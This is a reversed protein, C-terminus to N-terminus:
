ESASAPACPQSPTATSSSNVTISAIMNNFPAKNFIGHNQYLYDEVLQNLDTRVQESTYGRAQQQPLTVSFQQWPDSSLNRWLIDLGVADDRLFALDETTTDINADFGLTTAITCRSDTFILSSHDFNLRIHLRNTTFNPKFSVFFPQPDEDINAGDTGDSDVSPVIERWKKKQWGELGHHHCCLLLTAAPTHSLM